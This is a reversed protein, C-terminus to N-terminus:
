TMAIVDGTLLSTMLFDEESFHQKMQIFIKGHFTWMGLIVPAKWQFRGVGM